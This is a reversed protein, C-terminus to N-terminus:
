NKTTKTSFSLSYDRQLAEWAGSNEWLNYLTWADLVEGVNSQMEQEDELFSVPGAHALVEETPLSFSLKSQRQNLLPPCITCTTEGITQQMCDSCALRCIMRSGLVMQSGSRKMIQLLPYFLLWYEQEQSDDNNPVGASNGCFPCLLLSDVGPWDFDGNPLLNMEKSQGKTRMMVRFDRFNDATFVCRGGVTLTTPMMTSHRLAQQSPELQLIKCGEFNVMFHDAENETAKDTPFKSTFGKDNFVRVPQKPLLKIRPDFTSNKQVLLSCRAAKMGPTELQSWLEQSSSTLQSSKTVATGHVGRSELAKPAQSPLFKNQPQENSTQATAYKYKEFASSNNGQFYLELLHQLRVQFHVLQKEFQDGRTELYRSSFCFLPICQTVDRISYFGKLPGVKANSKAGAGKSELHDKLHKSSGIKRIRALVIVTKTDDKSDFRLPDSSCFIGGNHAIGNLYVHLSEAARLSTSTESTVLHYAIDVHCPIERCLLGWQLRFVHESFFSINERAVNRFVKTELSIASEVFNSAKQRIRFQLLLEELLEEKNTTLKQQQAWCNLILAASIGLYLSGLACQISIALRLVDNAIIPNQLLEITSTTTPQGVKSPAQSSFKREESAFSVERKMTPPITFDKDIM